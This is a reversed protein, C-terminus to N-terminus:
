GNAKAWKQYEKKYKLFTPYDEAYKTKGTDLNVTVYFIYKTKAPNVAADISEVGPSAIPGPPLGAHTYTNYPDDSKLQDATLTAGADKLHYKLTADLQLMMDQKLRNYIVSAVKPRDEDLKAEREVLSAINLVKERNGEEVGADDLRQITQAVMRKLVIAPTVDPDFEYTAPALWGELDGKAIAPLGLADTDKAAAEVADVSTATISAIKEYTQAKTLGEPITLNRVDRNSPDLLSQLAYEAKMERHMWYYGPVVSQSDPNSNWEQLFAARSAIVGSDVLTTAIDSGTDGSQVVVQLTGQGTGEYDAIENSSGEFTGVFNYAVSAGLAFIVIAVASVVLTWKRRTARRKNRQLRRLDLTTTTATEAEFLDTM